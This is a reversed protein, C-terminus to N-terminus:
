RVTANGGLDKKLIVLLDKKEQDALDEIMLQLDM